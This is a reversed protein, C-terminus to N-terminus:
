PLRLKGCEALAATAIVAICLIGIGGAILTQKRADAIQEPYIHDRFGRRKSMTAIRLTERANGISGTVRELLSPKKWIRKPERSNHQPLEMSTKYYLRLTVTKCSLQLAVYIRNGYFAHIREYM